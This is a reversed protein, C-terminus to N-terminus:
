PNVGSLPTYFVYPTQVVCAGIVALMGLVIRDMWDHQYWMKEVADLAQKLRWIVVVIFVGSLGLLVLLPPFSLLVETVASAFASVEANAIEEYARPSRNAMSQWRIFLGVYLGSAAAAFVRKGTNVALSSVLITWMVLLVGKGIPDTGRFSYSM